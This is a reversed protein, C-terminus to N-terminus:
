QLDVTARRNQPEKVGDGTQVMLEAEGRGSTSIASDPVGKGVLNAKAANSRCESLRQNYANSGSTDTHGVVRVSASGTSKAAAAAESLVRDAEDTINCKDFGFFVIFQKVEPRPPPPPQPPAPPPTPMEDPALDFRLGLSLSHKGFDDFVVTETSTIGASVIDVDALAPPSVHLYRYTLTVETRPSLAYSLGAIGQAAFRWDEVSMPDWAPTVSLKSRADIEVRDGGAGAGLSLRWRSGLPVDYHVNAMLSFEDVDGELRRFTDSVTFRAAVDNSRYGAEAELRWNNAFAYGVTAFAAWGTDFSAQSTDSTVNNANINLDYAADADGIWNAGGELGVYWGKFTAAEAPLGFAAAAVGLLLTQRIQM